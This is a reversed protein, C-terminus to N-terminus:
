QVVLDKPDRLVVGLSMLYEFVRMTWPDSAAEGTLIRALRRRVRPEMMRGLVNNKYKQGARYLNFLRGNYWTEIVRQWLEFEKLREVQYKEMARATGITLADCAAFASKLGLYLGSSFVPDVFGASDGVLMWGPGYMRDSVLQYNTYRVVPSVRTADRCYFKLSPEERIFADYQKEIGDGYQALHAPDIVFGLSVKGPLPIRWSWGKTLFDLHIHGVDNMTANALHAFLAVDNRGGTKVAHGLLKPIMRNRGTADVILDPQEEFFGASRSITESTLRVTDSVEGKELKAGSRFIAAGAREAASLLTQDFIDRPTNYAYDPLKGEAFTFSASIVEDLNLCVTAGPKYVSYSKVEDEIGLERLYPIVAPLLSEGVILPPRKDTHFIGTKWGRKALLAGLCAGAPGGGIIAVSRGTEAM